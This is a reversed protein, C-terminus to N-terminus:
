AAIAYLVSDRRTTETDNPNQISDYSDCAVTECIGRKSRLSSHSHYYREAQM